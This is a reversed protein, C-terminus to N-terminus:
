EGVLSVSRCHFNLLGEGQLCNLDSLYHVLPLTIVIFYSRINPPQPHPAFSSSSTEGWVCLTMLVKLPLGLLPAASQSNSRLSLTQLWSIHPCVWAMPFPVFPLVIVPSCVSNWKLLPWIAKEDGSFTVHHVFSLRQTSQCISSSLTLAIRCLDM